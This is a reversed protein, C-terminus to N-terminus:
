TDTPQGRQPDSAAAGDGGHKERETKNGKKEGTSQGANEECAVIEGGSGSDAVIEDGAMEMEHHTDGRGKCNKARQKEPKGFKKAAAQVLREAFKMEPQGKGADVAGEHRHVPEARDGM